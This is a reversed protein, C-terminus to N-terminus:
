TLSDRCQSGLSARLRWHKCQLPLGKSWTPEWTGPAQISMDRTGPNKGSTRSCSSQGRLGRLRERESCPITGKGQQQRPEQPVRVEGKNGPHAGSPCWRPRAGRGVVGRVAARAAGTGAAGRGEDQGPGATGLVVGLASASLNKCVGPAFGRAQQSSQGALGLQGM